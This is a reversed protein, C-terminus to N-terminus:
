LREPGVLNVLLLLGEFYPELLELPELNL